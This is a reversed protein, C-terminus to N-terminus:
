AVISASWWILSQQHGRWNTNSHPKCFCWNCALCYFFNFLSCNCIFYRSHESSCWRNLFQLNGTQFTVKHAPFFNSLNLQNKTCNWDLTQSSIISLGHCVCTKLRMSVVIFTVFLSPSCRPTHFSVSSLTLELRFASLTYHFTTLLRHSFQQHSSTISQFLYSSCTAVWQVVFLIEMTKQFMNLVQLLGSLKLAHLWNLGELSMVSYCRWEGTISIPLPTLGDTTRSM